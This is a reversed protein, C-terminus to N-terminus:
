QTLKDRKYYFRGFLVVTTVVLAVLLAITAAIAGGMQGLILGQQLFACFLACELEIWVLARASALYWLPEENEGLTGPRNWYKPDVLHLVLSMITLTILITVPLAVFEMPSGWRDPQGNFGYHVPIPETANLSYLVIVGLSALCAIWALAEVVFIDRTMWGRKKM